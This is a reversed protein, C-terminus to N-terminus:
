ANRDGFKIPYDALPVKFFPRKEESVTEKQGNAEYDNAERETPFTSGDSTEWLYIIKQVCKVM